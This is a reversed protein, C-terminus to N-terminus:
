PVEMQLMGQNWRPIGGEVDCRSACRILTKVGAHANRNARTGACGHVEMCILTFCLVCKIGILARPSWNAHKRWSCRLQPYAHQPELAGSNRTIAQMPHCLPRFIGKRCPFLLQPQAHKTAFARSSWDQIKAQM